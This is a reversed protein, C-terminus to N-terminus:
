PARELAPALAAALHEGYVRAGLPTLHVQDMYGDEPVEPAEIVEHGDARMRALMQARISTWWAVQQEDMLGFHRQFALNFPSEFFVVRQASASALRTILAILRYEDESMRGSPLHLRHVAGPARTAFLRRWPVMQVNTTGGQFRAPLLGVRAAARRASWVALMPQFEEDVWLRGRVRYVRWADFAVSALDAELRRSFSLGYGERQLVERQAANAERVLPVEDDGLQVVYPPKGEAFNHPAFEVLLLAVPRTATAAVVPVAARTAGGHQAFNFVPRRDGRSRLARAFFAVPSLGVPVGAGYSMSSGAVAVARRRLAAPARFLMRRTADATAIGPSNRLEGDTLHAEDRREVRAVALDVAALACLTLAAVRALRAWTWRAETSM